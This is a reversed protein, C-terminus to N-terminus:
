TRTNVPILLDATLLYLGSDANNDDEMRHMVRVVDGALFNTGTVTIEKQAVDGAAYGNLDWTSDSSQELSEGTNDRSIYFDIDYDIVDNAITDRKISVRYKFDEGAVYDNPLRFWILAYNNNSASNKAFQMLGGNWYVNTTGSTLGQKPIMQSAQIIRYHQETFNTANTSIETRNQEILHSNKRQIDNAMQYTQATTLIMTWINTKLDMEFSEIICATTPVEDWAKSDWAFSVTEGPQLMGYDTAKWKGRIKIRKPPALVFSLISDAMANCLTQNNLLTARETFINIGFTTQSGSDNDFGSAGASGEVEVRNYIDHARKMGTIACNAHSQNQDISVGSANEGSERFYIMNTNAGSQDPTEYWTFGQLKIADDLIDRVALDGGLDITLSNTLTQSVGGWNGHNLNSQCVHELIYDVEKTTFSLKSEVKDIERLKSELTYTPPYKEDKNIVLLSYTWTNQTTQSSTYPFGYVQIESGITISENQNIKAIGRIIDEKAHKIKFNYINSASLSPALETKNDGISYTADWSWAIADIYSTSTVNSFMSFKTAGNNNDSQHFDFDGYEVDDIYIRIKFQALAGDGRSDYGGATCEFDISIHYWTNISFAPEGPINNWGVSDKYRWHSLNYQFRTLINSGSQIWIEPGVGESLMWYEITGYKQGSDTFSHIWNCNAAGNPGYLKFVKIHGEKDSHVSTVCDTGDNDSWTADPVATGEPTDQLNYGENGVDYIGRNIKKFSTM